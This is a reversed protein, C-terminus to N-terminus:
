LLSSLARNPNLRAMRALLLAAVLTKGCGTPFIVLLDRALCEVFAEIQYPRPLTDTLGHWSFEELQAALRVDMKPNMVVTEPVQGSAFSDTESPPVSATSAKPGFFTDDTRVEIRRFPEHRCMEAWKQKKGLPTALVVVSDAAFGVFPTSSPGFPLESAVGINCSRCIVKAKKKAPEQVTM